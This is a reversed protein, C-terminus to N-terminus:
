LYEDIDEIDIFHEIVEPTIELEEGPYLGVPDNTQSALEVLEEPSIDEEMLYLKIDAKSLSSFIDQEQEVEKPTFYFWSFLLLCFALSPFAIKFIPLAQELRTNSRKAARAQIKTSLEEFYGEPTQFINGKDIDELKM